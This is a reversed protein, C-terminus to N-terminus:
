TIDISTYCFSQPAVKLYEGNILKFSSIDLPEDFRKYGSIKIYYKWTSEDYQNYFGILSLWNDVEKCYEDSQKSLKNYHSPDKLSRNLSEDFTMPRKNKILFDLYEDDFLYNIVLSNDYGELNISLAKKIQNIIEKDLNKKNAYHLLFNYCGLKHKPIEVMEEVVFYGVVKGKGGNKKTEYMYIKDGKNVKIMINRFELDKEGSLILNTFDKYLSFIANM